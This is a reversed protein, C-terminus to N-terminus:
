SAPSAKIPIDRRETNFSFPSFNSSRGARRRMSGSGFGGM